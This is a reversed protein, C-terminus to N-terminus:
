GIKAYHDTNRSSRSISSENFRGGVCRLPFHTRDTYLRSTKCRMKDIRTKSVTPPCM